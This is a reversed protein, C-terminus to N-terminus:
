GLERQVDEWAHVRGAQEDELSERLAEMADADCLLELTEEFIELADKLCQYTKPFLM